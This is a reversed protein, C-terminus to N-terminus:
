RRPTGAPWSVAARRRTLGAALRCYRDAVSAWGLNRAAIGAAMAMRTATMRDAVVRRVAAAIAVPDRQDVLVGCGGSLLEVAHPFRTAVVPTRSAVAETLVASSTRDHSDYPLVVVEARSLLRRLSVADLYRPDFRVRGVVGRVEALTILSERYREGERALVRPHTPGAIVYRPEPRLDGLLAMAEIAWEIGKGPRLLGWTLVQRQQSRHPSVPAAGPDEAGRPVVVVRGAPVRYGVLLRARATESLVVVVAAAALAEELVARQRATPAVLVTHVVVVAPVSVAALVRLVDDGDAGGYIGYDHQVVAVDTQDLLVAAERCSAASGAVLEGTVEPAGRGTPSEVLRVVRGRVGIPLASLLSSTFSAIACVTPPYTSLFGFTVVVSGKPDTPGGGHRGGRVGAIGPVPLRTFRCPRGSFLRFL